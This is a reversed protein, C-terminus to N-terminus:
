TGEYPEVGADVVDWIMSEPVYFPSKTICVRLTEKAEDYTVRLEVGYLGAVSVDDGAPVTVGEKALDGRLHDLEARTIGGYLKCNPM